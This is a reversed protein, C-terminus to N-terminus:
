VGPPLVSAVVAPANLLIKRATEMRQLDQDSKALVAAIKPRYQILTPLNLKGRAELLQVEAEVLMVETIESPAARLRSLLCEYLTVSAGKRGPAKLVTITLEGDKEARLFTAGAVLDLQPRLVERLNEDQKAVTEGSTAMEDPIPYSQGELIVVAM